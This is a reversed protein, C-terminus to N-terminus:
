EVEKVNFELEEVDDTYGNDILWHKVLEIAEEKTEVEIYDGVWNDFDETYYRRM